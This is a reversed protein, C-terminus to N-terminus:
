GRERESGREGREGRGRGEREEGEGRGRREEMGCPFSFFQFLFNDNGILTALASSATACLVGIDLAEPIL